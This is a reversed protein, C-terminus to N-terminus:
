HLICSAVTVIDRLAVDSRTAGLGFRNLPM